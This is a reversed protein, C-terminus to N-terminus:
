ATIEEWSGVPMAIEAGGPFSWGYSWGDERRIPWVTATTTHGLPTDLDCFLHFGAARAKDCFWVDEGIDVTSARGVEFWPEDMAKLVHRSIVMGATGGSHIEVIGGDPHDNPDLRARYFDGDDRWSTFAVPKYPPARTLCLPVVIDKRHALLRLLLDSEFEHDDDLLFLWDLGDVNLFDRIIENRSSAINHGMVWKIASGPPVALGSLSAPFSSFRAADQAIVGILGPRM